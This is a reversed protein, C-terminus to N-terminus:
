KKPSPTASTPASFNAPRDGVTIKLTLTSDGRVVKIDTTEGMGMRRVQLILDDMSRITSTGLGVVVDGPKVAAKEAGSGKAIEGVLAGESVSFGKSTALEPTLTQGIIGLFPHAVKGSAILQDAVLVAKNVPVAFGVGAGVGSDSYMATNVGVLKGLRDVLAGGSNGPNIAADTQIVDVLPYSGQANDAFDPLSRGLASVVGAAVSHELGFPSGITVVTQGVVLKSSDGLDIIPLPESIKIVAIDSDADAGVVTAPWSKGSNSRVTIRDAKGVVHQNTLLYTGGDPTARFAVGSGNGKTPVSPHTRPLGNEGAAATAETVGVNVISPVAAAAAAVIPEDTTSPVVTIKAAAPSGASLRAGAYGGALGALSGILLATIVAAAIALGLHSSPKAGAPTSAPTPAAAPHDWGAVPPPTVVPTPDQPGAESPSHVDSM